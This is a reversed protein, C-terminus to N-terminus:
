TKNNLAKVFAEWNTVFSVNMFSIIERWVMFDQPYFNLIKLSFLIILSFHKELPKEM